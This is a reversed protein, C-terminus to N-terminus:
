VLRRMHGKLATDLDIEFGVVPYGLENNLIVEPHLEGFHGFPQGDILLAAARGDIFMPSDSSALTYSVVLDRMVGEVLSKMETFSAKPHVAVAALHKRRNPGKLVDGVEFIRQPLDRHKSKRLVALLSPLLHVRLCTHDESIPNLIEVVEELPLRMGEFQEKQSSLTLTTVEYYDYGIMLHRVLDSAREIPREAGIAQVKPRAKGFKAYGYGKAVDEVLDVPHLLDMRTAPSHVELAAKGLSVDHGMKELCSAMESNTLALGLVSNCYDPDLEWRSPKLDPTTSHVSGTLRVSQIEGGREALLTAVINLVGSVANLDTGTVDIFVNRTEETVTTLTGNIIPPFSLVDGNKDFIVPYREKGELIYAYDIGKEHKQLIEDLNMRETKGLPVFSVEEPRMATYLFPPAVKDLDHIGVSVKQRKRGATLHIKEQVEMLSRIMTDTITLGRVVGAVVFPRVKEISADVKMTIGSDTVAYRKLGKEVGLFTRLSRAIGEVSYMDPRDPFFEIGMEDTEADYHHFDAGMMPILSAVEDAPLEKGTLSVLDRFNFTIVPM